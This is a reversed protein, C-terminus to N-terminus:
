PRRPVRLFDARSAPAGPALNTIHFAGVRLSPTPAPTICDARTLGKLADVGSRTLSKSVGKTMLNALLRTQNLLKPQMENLTESLSVGTFGTLAEDSQLGLSTIASCRNQM